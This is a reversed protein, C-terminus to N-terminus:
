DDTSEMSKLQKTVIKLGEKIIHPRYDLEAAAKNILLGSKLPRTGIEELEESPVETILDKDLKYFDAITYALDLVRMNEPGAIHFIGKAEKRVISLCAEAIDEALTPTRWQDNNVRIHGNKELCYKVWLLFNSRKMTFNTGYVLCTRIIALNKSIKAAIKESELKTKGYYNVPQTKGEESYPGNRGDFVFDSSLLIFQSGFKESSKALIGTAEVNTKWAELQQTECLAVQTAAATHIVVEPEYRNLIYDVEVPNTIDMLEFQYGEKLQHVNESFSSAIIEYEKEPLFREVLKQGILGNSGTILIKKMIIQIANHYRTFHM